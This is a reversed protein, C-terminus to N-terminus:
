ANPACSPNPGAALLLGTCITTSSTACHNPRGASPLVATSTELGSQCCEEGPLRTSEGGTKHLCIAKRCSEEAGPYALSCCEAQAKAYMESIQVKGCPKRWIESGREKGHIKRQTIHVCDRKKALILIISLFDWVFIALKELCVFLLYFILVIFVYM